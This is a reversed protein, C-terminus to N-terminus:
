CAILCAEDFARSLWDKILLDGVTSGRSTKLSLPEASSKAVVAVQTIRDKPEEDPGPHIAHVALAQHDPQINGVRNDETRSFRAGKAVLARKRSLGWPACRSRKHM